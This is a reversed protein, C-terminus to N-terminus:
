RRALRHEKATVSRCSMASFEATAGGWHADAITGVQVYPLRCTGLVSMTPRDGGPSGIVDVLDGEIVFKGSEVFRIHAKQRPGILGSRSMIHVPQGNVRLMAIPYEQWNTLTLCRAGNCFEPKEDVFATLPRGVLSRPDRGAPVDTRKPATPLAPPAGQRLLQLQEQLLENQEELARMRASSACGAFGICLLTIITTRMIM